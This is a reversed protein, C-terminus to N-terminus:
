AGGSPLPPKLDPNIPRPPMIPEGPEIPPTLPRFPTVPPPITISSVEPIPPPAPAPAETERTRRRFITGRYERYGLMTMLAAGVGGCLPFISAIIAMVLAFVGLGFVTSNASGMLLAVVVWLSMFTLVGVVSTALTSQTTLHALALVKKGLREGTATVGMTIGIVYALPVLPLVIIGIITIAILGVLIPLVFLLFLGLSASKAPHQFLCTEFNALQRPFLSVILFGAVILFAVFGLVVYLGNTSFRQSLLEASLNLANTITQKGKVKGGKSVVISPAEINGDVQGQSAVTVPGNLSQVDGKVWGRILVNGYAILDGDVYEDPHVVVNKQFPKVRKQNVCRETVPGMAAAESGSRGDLTEDEIPAETDHVFTNSEFDYMWRNGGTDIATVGERTLKIQTFLTDRQPSSAVKTTAPVAMAAPALAFALLSILLARHSPCLWRM